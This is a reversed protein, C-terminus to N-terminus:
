DSFDPLENDSNKRTVKKRIGSDVFWKHRLFGYNNARRGSRKSRILKHEVLENLYIRVTRSTVGLEEAITEHKPNCQKTHPNFYRCLRAYCLKAGNSVETRRLLWNPVWVGYWLDRPNIEDASQKKRENIKPAVMGARKALMAVATRYPIKNFEMIFTIVNGGAGCMFCKYIQKRRNVEFKGPSTGHDSFPCWGSLNEKGEQEELQVVEGIVDAIDNAKKIRQIYAKNM